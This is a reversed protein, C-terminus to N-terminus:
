REIPYGYKEFWEAYTKAIEAALAPDLSDKWAGYRGDTIHGKHFLNKENYMANRDGESEYKLTDLEDIIAAPLTEHDSSTYAIIGKHHLADIMARIIREKDELMDEYKLAYDAVQMWDEHLKVYHNAWGLDPIGGFKRQQSAIADRIDRYSYFIATSANVLDPSFSHVKILMYRKKPLKEWDGIWGYSFDSAIDPQNAMLLRTVNYMWTSASRPMGASTVLVSPHDMQRDEIATCVRSSKSHADENPYTSEFDPKVPADSFNYFGFIFVFSVADTGQGEEYVPPRAIGM